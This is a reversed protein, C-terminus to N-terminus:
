GGFELKGFIFHKFINVVAARVLRVSYCGRVLDLFSRYLVRSGLEVRFCRDENRHSSYRGLEVRFRRDENRSHSSSAGASARLVGTSCLQCSSSDIGIMTKSMGQSQLLTSSLPTGSLVMLGHLM